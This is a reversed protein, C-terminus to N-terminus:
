IVYCMIHWLHLSLLRPGSKSLALYAPNPGVCIERRLVKGRVKAMLKRSLCNSVVSSRLTYHLGPVDTNLPAERYSILPVTKLHLSHFQSIVHLLLHVM